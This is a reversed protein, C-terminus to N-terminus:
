DFFQQIDFQSNFVYNTRRLVTSSRERRGSNSDRRTTRQWDWGEREVWNKGTLEISDQGFLPMFLGLFITM